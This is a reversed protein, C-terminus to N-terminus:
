YPHLTAQMSHTARVNTFPYLPSNPGGPNYSSIISASASAVPSSTPPATGIIVPGSITVNTDPSVSITSPTASPYPQYIYVTTTYPADGSDNRNYNIDDGEIITSDEIYVPGEFIFSPSNSPDRAIAADYFNLAETTEGRASFMRVFFCVTWTIGKGLM